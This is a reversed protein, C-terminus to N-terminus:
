IQPPPLDRMVWFGSCEEADLSRQVALFHLGQCQQKATEWAAAEEDAQKSKRYFAYRWREAVGTSLILCAKQSEVRLAALELASTWAALPVARASAVAVGPVMADPSLGELGMCSLSLTGGFMSGSQVREIEEMVGALPLQVFAWQEGKLSDPLNQPTPAELQLLPPAGEQFRPHQSYVSSMREELWQLLAVCRQSPVPRVDLEACAKSIITQMQGRFFRVKEPKPLDFREMINLLADRLTASNIQNSAFYQAYELKRSSDCVLLEWVRKGREDLIPRSCFDLEWETIGDYSGEEPVESVDLVEQQPPSREAVRCQVSTAFGTPPWSLGLRSKRSGRARFTSKVQLSSPRVESPPIAVVVRSLPEQPPLWATPTSQRAWTVSPAAM